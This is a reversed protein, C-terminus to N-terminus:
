GTKQNLRNIIADAHGAHDIADWHHPRFGGNGKCLRVLNRTPAGDEEFRLIHWSLLDAAQLPNSTEPDDPILRGVLRELKPNLVSLSIQLEEHFSKIHNTIQGNRSVVFDVKDADPYREHVELLVHYAYGIFCIYDPHKLGSGPKIGASRLRACLSEEMESQILRSFVASIGGASFLVDVGTDIRASAEWPKLGHDRQWAPNRLQRMHLYPIPPRSNLVREQWARSFYGWTGISEGVYGGLLYTGKTNGAGSEDSFATYVAVRKEPNTIGCFLARTVNEALMPSVQAGINNSKLRM